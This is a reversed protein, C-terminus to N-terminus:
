QGEYIFNSLNNVDKLSEKYEQNYKKKKYENYKNNYTNNNTKNDTNNNNILNNFNFNYLDHKIDVLLSIMKHDSKAPTLYMKFNKRYVKLIKDNSLAFLIVDTQSPARIYGDSPLIDFVEEIVESISKKENDTTTINKFNGKDNL